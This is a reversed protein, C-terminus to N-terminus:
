RVQISVWAGSGVGGTASDDDLGRGDSRSVVLPARASSRDSKFRAGSRWRAMACIATKCVERARLTPAAAGAEPQIILACDVVRLARLERPPISGRPRFLV